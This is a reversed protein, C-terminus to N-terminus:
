WPPWWPKLSQHSTEKISGRRTYYHTSMQSNLFPVIAQGQANSFKTSAAVIEKEDFNILNFAAKM